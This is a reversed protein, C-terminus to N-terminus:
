ILSKGALKDLDQEPIQIINEQDKWEKLRKIFEKVNDVNIQQCGCPETWIKDSLNFEREKPQNIDSAM